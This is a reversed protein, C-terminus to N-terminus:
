KKFPITQLLTLKGTEKDYSWLEKDSVQNKSPDDVQYMYSYYRTFEVTNADVFRYAAIFNQIDRPYKFQNKHAEAFANVDGPMKFTIVDRSLLDIITFMQQHKYGAIDDRTSYSVNGPAEQASEFSYSTQDPSLRIHGPAGGNYLKTIGGNFSVAYLNSTPFLIHTSGLGSFGANVYVEKLLSNASSPVVYYESPECSYERNDGCVSSVAKGIDVRAIEKNAQNDIITIIKSTSVVPSVSNIQETIDKIGLLSNNEITTWDQKLLEERSIENRIVIASNENQLSSEQAVKETNKVVSYTAVSVFVITLVIVIIYKNKM